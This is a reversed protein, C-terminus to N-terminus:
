QNAHDGGLFINRTLEGIRARLGAGCGAASRNANSFGGTASRM